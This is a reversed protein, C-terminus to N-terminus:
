SKEHQFDRGSLGGCPHKQIGLTEPHLRLLQIPEPCTRFAYYGVMAYARSGCRLGLCFIMMFHPHAPHTLIIVVGFYGDQTVSDRQGIHNLNTPTNIFFFRSCGQGM